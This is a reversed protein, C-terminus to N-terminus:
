LFYVVYLTYLHFKRIGRFGLLAVFHGEWFCLKPLLITCFRLKQVSVLIGGGGGKFVFYEQINFLNFLVFARM